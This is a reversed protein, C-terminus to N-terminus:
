ELPGGDALCTCRCSQEETIFTPPEVPLVGSVTASERTATVAVQLAELAMMRKETDANDLWGKVLSCVRELMAADIPRQNSQAVPSLVALREELLQRRRRLEEGESRVTDDDIEGYTYLRVLRKERDKLSAIERDLREREDAHDPQPEATQAREYESLVVSPRSM